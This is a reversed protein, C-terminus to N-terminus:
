DEEDDLTDWECNLAYDDDIRWEQQCHPCRLYYRDQNRNFGTLVTSDEVQCYPCIPTAFM